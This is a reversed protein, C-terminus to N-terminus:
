TRKGGTANRGAAALRTWEVKQGVSEASIRARQSSSRAGENLDFEFFSQVLDLWIEM